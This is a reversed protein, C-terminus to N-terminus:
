PSVELKITKSGYGHVSDHGRIMVWKISPPIKVNMLSRTFPQEEVHPHLLTRTGLIEGDPSVVEFRDAYHDWGTDGHALTVDFRYKQGGTHRVKADVVSVEGGFAQTSMLTLIPWFGAIALSLYRSIMKM